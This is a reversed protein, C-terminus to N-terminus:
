APEALAYYAEAIVREALRWALHIRGGPLDVAASVHDVPAAHVTFGRQELLRRARTMHLGDTVLIVSRVGRTHLADAVAAVEQRTTGGAALGLVADPRVGLRVALAIRADTETVGHARSTGTLVVLPTLGGHHYAIAAVARRLSTATLVGDPQVGSSLAVVAGARGVNAPVGLAMTLVNAVPTFAVAVLCVLGLAGIARLATM